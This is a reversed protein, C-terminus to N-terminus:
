VRLLKRNEKAPKASCSSVNQTSTGGCESVPNGSWHARPGPAPAVMWPTREHRTESTLVINRKNFCFYTM